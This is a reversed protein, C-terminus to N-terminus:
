ICKAFRRLPASSGAASSGAAADVGVTIALRHISSTAPVVALAGATLPLLVFAFAIEMNVLWLKNEDTREVVM